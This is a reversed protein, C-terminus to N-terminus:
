RLWKRLPGLLGLVGTALLQLSSPEPVAAAPGSWKGAVFSDGAGLGHIGTDGIQGDPTNLTQLSATPSNFLLVEWLDIHGSADTSVEFVPALTNSNTFTQVGDSFSFAVPTIIDFSLNPALPSALTFSGTVSMSTAYSGSVTTFNQGTYNYIADAHALVPCMLVLLLAFTGLYTRMKNSM